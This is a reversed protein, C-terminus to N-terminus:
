LFTWPMATLPFIVRLIYLSVTSQLLSSIYVGFPKRPPETTLFGGALCSLCTQDRPPSSARPSFIAIWELIRAQSIGHVSSGPPSCDMLDFLILCSKAVAAAAYSSIYLIKIDTFWNKLPFIKFIHFITINLIYSVLGFSRGGWYYIPLPVSYCVLIYM